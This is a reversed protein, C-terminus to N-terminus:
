APLLKFIPMIILLGFSLLAVLKSDINNANNTTLIFYSILYKIGVLATLLLITIFALYEFHSSFGSLIQVLKYWVTYVPFSGKTSFDLIFQTHIPIDSIWHRKDTPQWVQFYFSNYFIFFSVTVAAIFGLDIFKDRRVLIM